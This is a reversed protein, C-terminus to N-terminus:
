GSLNTGIGSEQSLSDLQGQVASSHDTSCFAVASVYSHPSWEQPSLEWLPPTDLKILSWQMWMATVNVTAGWVLKQTPRMGEIPLEIISGPDHSSHSPSGTSLGLTRQGWLEHQEREIARCIKGAYSSLDEEALKYAPFNNRKWSLCSLIVNPMISYIVSKTPLSTPIGLSSIIVLWLFLLLALPLLEFRYYWRSASILLIM